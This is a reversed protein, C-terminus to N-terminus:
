EYSRLLQSAPYISGNFCTATIPIDVKASSYLYLCCLQLASLFRTSSVSWFSFIQSKRRKLAAKKTCISKLNYFVHCQLRLRSFFLKRHAKTHLKETKKVIGSVDTETSNYVYYLSFNPSQLFMYSILWLKQDPDHFRCFCQLSVDFLGYSHFLLLM